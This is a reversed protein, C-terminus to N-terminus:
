TGKPIFEQCAPTVQHFSHQSHIFHDFATQYSFFENWDVLAWASRYGRYNKPPSLKKLDHSQLCLALLSPLNELLLLLWRLYSPMTQWANGRRIRAFDQSSACPTNGKWLWPLILLLSISLWGLDPLHCTATRSTFGLVNAGADVARSCQWPPSGWGLIFLHKTPSM